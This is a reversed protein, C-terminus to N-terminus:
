YYILMNKKVVNKKICLNSTKKIKVVLSVLAVLPIRKNKEIKHIVRVKVSLKIDKLDLKKAFDKDGKTITAPHHHAPNLYRVLCWRFCEHDDINQINIM